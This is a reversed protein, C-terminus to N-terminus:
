GALTVRAPRAQSGSRASGCSLARELRERGGKDRGFHDTLAGAVPEPNAM